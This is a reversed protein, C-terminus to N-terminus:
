RILHGLVDLRGDIESNPTLQLIHALFPYVHISEFAEVRRDSVLEPGRMLFIGHMSPLTPDWGHMAAPPSSDPQFGVLVGEEPVVLVDGIRTSARHHLHAPVEDRLFARADPETANIRDRLERARTEDGDVYLSMGPGTPIARVGRLDVVEPLVIQRDPDVAAMGHDSVVVVYVRTGFELQEIGDLLRGLLRDASRVADGIEVGDPGRRHGAGDVLSFYVMILHPREPPVTGLWAAVQAVRDANSMSADYPRWHTPHIGGIAAETGPFFLTAAVMGQREATLWIPEGGWWLGDQADAQERYNFEEDRLPDYFRNGVIGHHEPYLGTAISYHSPFTLSPFVPILSDSVVGTRALRDFHPTDFRDLYDPRVGDFSVLVVYPRDVVSPHNIGGSGDPTHITEAPQPHPATWAGGCAGVLAAVCLVTVADRWRMM